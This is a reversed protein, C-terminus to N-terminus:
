HRHSRPQRDDVSTMDPGRVDYLANGSEQRQHSGRQKAVDDGHDHQRATAVPRNITTDVDKDGVQGGAVQSDAAESHASLYNKGYSHDGHPDPVLLYGVYVWDM